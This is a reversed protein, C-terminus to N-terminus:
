FGPTALVRPDVTPGSRRRMVWRAWSMASRARASRIQHWYHILLCHALRSPWPHVQQPIVGVASHAPSDDHLVPECSRGLVHGSDGGCQCCTSETHGSWGDWREQRASGEVVRPPEIIQADLDDLTNALSDGIQRNDTHTVGRTRGNDGSCCHCINCWNNGRNGRGYTQDEHQFYRGGTSLRGGPAKTGSPLGQTSTENTM